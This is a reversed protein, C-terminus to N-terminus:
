KPSLIFEFSIKQVRLVMLNPEVAGSYPNRLLHM